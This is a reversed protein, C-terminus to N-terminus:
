EGPPTAQPLKLIKDLAEVVESLTDAIIGARLQTDPYYDLSRDVQRYFEVRSYLVERLRQFPGPKVDDAM